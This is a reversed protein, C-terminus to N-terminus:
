GDIVEIRRLLQRFPSLTTRKEEEPMVPMLDLLLATGSDTTFTTEIINTEELYRRQARHEVGPQIAFFGGKDADLLRGFVSPSDFRPWCLWDISGGRSVLAASRCDGIIAYDDIWKM